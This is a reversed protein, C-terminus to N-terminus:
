HNGSLEDQKWKKKFDRFVRFGRFVRFVEKLGRLIPM